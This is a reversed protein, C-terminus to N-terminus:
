SPTLEIDDKSTHSEAIELTAAGSRLTTALYHASHPSGLVDASLREVDEIGSSFLADIKEPATCIPEHRPPAVSNIFFM